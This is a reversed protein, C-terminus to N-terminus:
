DNKEDEEKEGALLGYKEIIKIFQRVQYHKAKGGVNQFNLIEEVGERVYIRHSGKGGRFRFGFAEAIACLKEFRANKPRRKLEELVRRKNM